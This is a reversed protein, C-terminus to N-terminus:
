KNAMKEAWIKKSSIVKEEAAGCVNRQAPFPRSQLWFQQMKRM